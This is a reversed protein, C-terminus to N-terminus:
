PFALLEDKCHNKSNNLARMTNFCSVGGSSSLQFHINLVPDGSLFTM